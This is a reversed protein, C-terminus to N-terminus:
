DSVIGLKTLLDASNILQPHGLPFAIKGVIKNLTRNSYHVLWVQEVMVKGISPRYLKDIKRRFSEMEFFTIFPEMAKLYGVTLHLCSKKKPHDLEPYKRLISALDEQISVACAANFLLIDGETLYPGTLELRFPRLQSFYGTLDNVFGDLDVPLEIRQIPPQQRYRGRLPAALTVHLHEPAHWAVQGYLLLDLQTRIHNIEYALNDSSFPLGAVLTLGYSTKINKHNILIDLDLHSEGSM